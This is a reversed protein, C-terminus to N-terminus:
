RKYWEEPDIQPYVYEVLSRFNCLPGWLESGELDKNPKCKIIRIGWKKPVEKSVGGVKIIKAPQFLHRLRIQWLYDTDRFGQAEMAGSPDKVKKQNGQTDLLPSGDRNYGPIYHPKLKNTAIVIKGSDHLRSIFARRAANANGYLHEPVQLLKGFEVLRQLEWSDSDGDFGFSLAGKENLIEMIERYLNHWYAKYGDQTEQTALPISVPKIAWDDRRSDPPHPNYFCGEYNRDVPMLIGPGPASLIFETKGTDSEGETGILVRPRRKQNFPMWGKAAFHQPLPM